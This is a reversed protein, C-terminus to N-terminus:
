NDYLRTFPKQGDFALSAYSVHCLSGWGMAISSIAWSRNSPKKHKSDGLEYFYELIKFAIVGQLEKWDDVKIRM